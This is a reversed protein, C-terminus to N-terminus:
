LNFMLMAVGIVALLLGGCIERVQNSIFNILEGIFEKKSGEDKPKKAVRLGRGSQVLTIIALIILVIGFIKWIMTIKGKYRGYNCKGGKEINNDLNETHNIKKL